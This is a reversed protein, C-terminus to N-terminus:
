IECPVEGLNFFPFHLQQECGPLELGQAFTTWNTVFSLEPFSLGLFSLGLFSLGLFSLGIFSLELFSLLLFSLEM